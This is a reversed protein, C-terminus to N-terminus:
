DITIPYRRDYDALEFEIVGDKLAFRSAIQLRGEEVVQHVVPAHDIFRGAPSDIILNGGADLTVDTAGDYRLKIMRPDRRAGVEFTYELGLPTSIVHADIGPWVERYVVEGFARESSIRRDRLDNVVGRTERAGELLTAASNVFTLWLSAARQLDAIRVDTPTVFVHRAGDISVLEAQGPAEGTNRVFAPMLRAHSGSVEAPKTHAAPAHAVGGVIFLGVSATFGRRIPSKITFM